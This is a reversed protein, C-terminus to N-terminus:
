ITIEEKMKNFKGEGIGEVNMIDEIKSFYGNGERYEIIRKATSEGVGTIKQLEEENATNINILTTEYTKNKTSMEKEEIKAISPVYIKQTDSVISALNIKSLDADDTAGGAEEILEYMRTEKLVKILGPNQVCGEIHVYIYEPQKEKENTDVQVVIEEKPLLYIGILTLIVLAGLALACKAKNNM